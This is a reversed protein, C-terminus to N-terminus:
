WFYVCRSLPFCKLAFIKVNDNCVFFRNFVCESAWVFEHWIDFDIEIGFRFSVNLLMSLASSHLQTSPYISPHVFAQSKLSEDIDVAIGEVIGVVFLLCCCCYDYRKNCCNLWQLVDFLLLLTSFHSEKATLGGEMGMCGSLLQVLFRPKNMKLKFYSIWEISLSGIRNSCRLSSEFQSHIFYMCLYTYMYM